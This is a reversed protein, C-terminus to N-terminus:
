GKRGVLVLSSRFPPILIKPFLTLARGLNKWYPHRLIGVIVHDTGIRENSTTGVHTITDRVQSYFREVIVFGNSGVLDALETLTYEKVHEHFLKRRGALALIHNELSLSNPTSIILIGGPRLVRRIEWFLQTLYNPDIHELVETFLIAEFREDPFPFRDKELDNKVARIGHSSYRLAHTEPQKDLAVLDYGLTQLMVSMRGPASGLELVTSGKAVYKLTLDLTEIFRNRHLQFWSLEQDDAISKGVLDVVDTPRRLM